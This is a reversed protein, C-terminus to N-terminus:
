EDIVIEPQVPLPEIDSPPEETGAFYIFGLTMLFICALLIFNSQQFMKHRAPETNDIAFCYNIVVAGLVAIYAVMLYSM